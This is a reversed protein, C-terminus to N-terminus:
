TSDLDFVILFAALNINSTYMIEMNINIINLIILIDIELLSIVNDKLGSKNAFLQYIFTYIKNIIDKGNNFIIVLFTVFLCNNLILM